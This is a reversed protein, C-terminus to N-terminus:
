PIRTASAEVEVRRDPQLCPILTTRPMTDPCQQLTTVPQSEGQGIARVDNIPIGNVILYDRVADARRQSLTQNYSEAGLRDTHGTVILVDYQTGRLGTILTALSDRGAPRL